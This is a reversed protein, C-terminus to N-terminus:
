APADVGTPEAGPLHTQLGDFARNLQRAAEWTSREAVVFQAAAKGMAVRRPRDLLLARALRGLGAADGPAALLGTRGDCVVDPVGRVACSVVPIGAAQAELMAMGYAENVAPWIFFDSAAYIGALADASREGLFHARGPVARELLAQVEDRASGNGVVLIQWRLDALHRLAQALLHYSALKDGSRMMAVVVLWPEQGPLDYTACLNARQADRTQEALRYPAPDLFPPLRVVHTHGGAVQQLGAVDDHTPCLLLTAAQIATRTAAHGTAWLGGARKAAYSAEAIVYPLRLAKSVEPGIWDPAKYYLHYTFWLEPREDQAGDLWQQILRNAIGTGQDRIVAQRLADGNGEFSRFDSALVVTHGALRLADMLLRGVRRDGSPTNHTPSKLPAYFAIRMRCELRRVRVIRAKPRAKGVGPCLAEAM